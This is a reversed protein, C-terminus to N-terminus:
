GGSGGIAAPKSPPPLPPLFDDEASPKPKASKKSKRDSAVRSKKEKSPQEKEVLAKDQESNKSDPDPEHAVGAAETPPRAPAAVPTQPLSETDANAPQVDNPTKKVPKVDSQAPPPPTASHTSVGPAPEVSDVGKGTVKGMLQDLQACGSMLLLVSLGLYGAAGQLSREVERLACIAELNPRGM